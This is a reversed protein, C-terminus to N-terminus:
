VECVQQLDDTNPNEIDELTATDDFTAMLQRMSAVPRAYSSRSGLPNGCSRTRYKSSDRDLLCFYHGLQDTLVFGTRGQVGSPLWDAEQGDQADTLTLEQNTEGADQFAPM